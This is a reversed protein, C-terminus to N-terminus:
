LWTVKEQYYRNIFKKEENPYGISIVGVPIIHRKIHFIDRYAQIREKRPAIACWCTGIGLHTAELLINEIAASCDILCYEKSAIKSDGLVIIAASAKKLMAQYPTTKSMETLLKRSQVVIFSWPQENRASPAQMGSALLKELDQKSVKKSTYKRISHRNKIEKLM